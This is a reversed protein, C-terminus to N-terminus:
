ASATLRHRADRALREGTSPDIASRMAQRALKDDAQSQEAQQIEIQGLHNQQITHQMPVVMMFAGQVILRIGFPVHSTRWELGLRPVTSIM